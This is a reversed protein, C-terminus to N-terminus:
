WFCECDGDNKGLTEQIAKIMSAGIADQTTTYIYRFQFTQSLM